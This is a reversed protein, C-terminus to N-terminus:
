KARGYMQRKITKLRNIQGEVPGNSWAMEVAARVAGYDDLLRKALSRLQRATCDRAQQLWPDLRGPAHDRILGTFEEALAVAEDLEPAHQRLDVLLAQDDASRKETRRLVLWAATRATLVPRSPAVLVPRPHKTPKRAAVTGPAARLRQLYRALTPYSGQYGDNQLTSFLLRGHRHGNNWHEFVVHQWPDLLSRGTGCRSKREPFVESRLNRFVTARSIGLHRAIVRGSWGQSRLAWVQEHVTARRDRREAALVRARTQPQALPISVIGRETAMADRRAQEAARLEKAHAAFVV